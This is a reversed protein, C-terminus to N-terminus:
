LSAGQKVPNSLLHRIERVITIDERAAIVLIRVTSASLAIDADPKCVANTVADMELGLFELGDCARQRIEPSHEGIGATFVLADIGNLSAAMAGITQRLRHVYVDIALEAQADGEDAAALVRRMDSSVGSMGLLGSKHNLVHDLQLIDVPKHRLLYLLLGPDVSGSRTGMVLGDLPTFGMSTDVCIGGRVASASAGNGLHVIVLRLDRDGVMEAARAACYAHSLGHFGYRRLGWDQTWEHPIAYTRAAPSLTSHFATDFSAFQEVDPLAAETAEMVQVAVPNHLPALEALSEIDRRVEATVRVATDYRDGGHVVRHGVAVIESLTRLPASPGRQLQDLIRAVSDAHTLSSGAACEIVGQALTREHKAEILSFKLTSSGANFILVKM